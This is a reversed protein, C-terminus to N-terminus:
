VAARKTHMQTHIRLLFYCGPPNQRPLASTISAISVAADPAVCIGCEQRLQQLLEINPTVHQKGRTARHQVFFM